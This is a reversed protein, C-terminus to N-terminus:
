IKARFGRYERLIHQIGSLGHEYIATGMQVATAGVRMYDEFDRTNVVGGCGVVSIHSGFRRHYEYVNWLSIPKLTRGGVAGIFGSCSMGRPITNSCVVYEIKECAKVLRSVKNIDQVDFVPRLKLGLIPAFRDDYNILRLTESLRELYGFDISADPHNPCSLNLEISKPLYKVTDLRDLLKTYDDPENIAFSIIYPKSSHEKKYKLYYDLGPNLLGNCNFSTRTITDYEYRRVKMESTDLENPELTCSKTLVAGSQSHELENLQKYTVAIPCSANYIPSTLYLYPALKTKMM